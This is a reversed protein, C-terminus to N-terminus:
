RSRMSPADTPAARPRWWGASLRSSEPLPSCSAVPSPTSSSGDPRRLPAPEAITDDASSLPISRTNLVEGVLMEVLQDLNDISLNAARIQRQAEARVHWIQWTSRHEEMAALV